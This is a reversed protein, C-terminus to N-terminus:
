DSILLIDKNKVRLRDYLKMTEEDIPILHLNCYELQVEKIQDGKLKHLTELFGYSTYFHTYLRSIGKSCNWVQCDFEAKNKTIYKTLYTGIQKPNNFTVKKIDFASSPKFNEDRPRIGAKAQLEIWYTWTKKIEWFPINTVMHFHINDKFTKNDTQREAVWLYELTKFRKKYNDIFKGLVKIAQKDSIENVFTLTIFTLKKHLQTFAILKVRIKSKTRPSMSRLPRIVELNEAINPDEICDAELDIKNKIRPKQKKRDLSSGSFTNNLKWNTQNSGLVASCGFTNKVIL